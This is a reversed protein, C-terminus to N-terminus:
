QGSGSVARVKSFDFGESAMKLLVRDIADAIMVTPQTVEGSLPGEIVANKTGYEPLDEDYRLATSHVISLGADIAVV